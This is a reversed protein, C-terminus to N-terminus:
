QLKLYLPSPFLVRNNMAMFFYVIMFVNVCRNFSFEYRLISGRSVVDADKFNTVM